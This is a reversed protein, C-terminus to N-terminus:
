AQKLDALSPDLLRRGVNDFQISCLVKNGYTILQEVVGRGYKAHYVINGESFKISSQSDDAPKEIEASYVPISSVEEQKEQMAPEEEGILSFDTNLGPLDDINDETQPEDIDSFEDLSIIDENNNPTHEENNIEDILDLDADEFMDDYNIQAEEQVSATDSKDTEAYLMNDVDKAIQDELSEDFINKLESNDTDELQIDDAPSIEELDAVSFDFSGAEQSSDGASILEAEDSHSNEGVTQASLESVVTEQQETDNQQLINPIDNHKQTLEEPMNKIILPTYYTAEGSIIFEGQALKNLFSNYTAFAKQQQLPKFLVLNKAFSKIQQSNESEYSSSLIPKLLKNKYICNLISKDIIEDNINLVLYCATDINNLIYNVAEKQWNKTINSLDLLTVDNSALTQTLSEFEQNSSAFINQEAYKLLKNRFLIVGVSKDTEYISNVVSLLSDFPIYKNDLTAIYDQIELIIDQIITKQEVTLGTLDNEYIYNLIESSVPLKFNEGLKITKCDVYEETADFSIALTKKGYNKNFSLIKQIFNQKEEFVDSQIYLFYDFLKQKASIPLKSSNTLQGISVGSKEDSFISAIIRPQTKSVLADLPPVYGSYTSFSNDANLDLSFKLLACNTIDSSTSEISVVQAIIKQNGDDVTLFDSLVLQFDAPEYYLKALNNKIEVLKM